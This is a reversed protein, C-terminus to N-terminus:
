KKTREIGYLKTLPSKKLKTVLPGAAAFWEAARPWPSTVTGAPLGQTGEPYEDLRAGEMSAAEINAMERNALNQGLPEGMALFRRPTVARGSPKFCDFFTDILIKVQKFTYPDEWWRRVQEKPNALREVTRIQNAIIRFLWYNTPGGFADVRKQNEEFSLRLRAEIEQSLTRESQRCAIELRERLSDSVRVSLHSNKRIAEDVSPRGMKAM